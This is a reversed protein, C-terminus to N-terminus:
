KIHRSNEDQDLLEEGIYEINLLIIAGSENNWIVNRSEYQFDLYTHLLALKTREGFIYLKISKM